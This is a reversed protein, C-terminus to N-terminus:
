YNVLPESRLRDVADMVAESLTYTVSDDFYDGNRDYLGFWRNNVWWWGNEGDNPLKGNFFWRQFDEPTRLTLGSFENELVAEGEADVTIWEDGLTVTVVAGHVYFEADEFRDIRPQHWSYRPTTM